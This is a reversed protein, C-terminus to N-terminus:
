LRGGDGYTVDGAGQINVSGDGGSQKQTINGKPPGSRGELMSVLLTGIGVLCLAAATWMPWEWFQRADSQAAFIGWGAGITVGAAFLSAGTQSLRDRSIGM